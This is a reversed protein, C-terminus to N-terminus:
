RVPRGMPTSLSNIPKPTGMDEQRQCLLGIEVTEMNEPSSGLARVVNMFSKMKRFADKVYDDLLGSTIAAVVRSTYPVM